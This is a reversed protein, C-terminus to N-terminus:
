SVELDDLCFDRKRLSNEILLGSHTTMRMPQMTQAIFPATWVINAIRSAFIILTLPDVQLDCVFIVSVKSM